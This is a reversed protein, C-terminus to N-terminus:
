NERSKKTSPLKIGQQLAFAVIKLDLENFLDRVDHNLMYRINELTADQKEFRKINVEHLKDVYAELKDMRREREVRTQEMSADLQGRTVVDRELKAIAELGKDYRGVDRRGFWAIISIALALAWGAYEKLGEM